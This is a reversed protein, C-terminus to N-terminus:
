FSHLCLWLGLDDRKTPYLHSLVDQAYDEPTFHTSCVEAKAVNVHDAQRMAALWKKQQAPDKLFSHYIVGQSNLCVAMACTRMTRQKKKPTKTDM